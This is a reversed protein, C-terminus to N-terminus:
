VVSGAEDIGSVKTLGEFVVAKFCTRLTEHGKMKRIMGSERATAFNSPSTWPELGINFTRGWWPYGPLGHFVKWYWIFPFVTRDWVLGFGLKRETNTVAYWGDELNDLYLLDASRAGDPPIARLDVANGNKDTTRPWNGQFGPEFFSTPSNFNRCVTFRRAPIDIRCNSDLFPKGFTPHQGWMFELEQDSENTISEEVAIIPSNARIGIRKEIKCPFRHTRCKLIVAVSAAHDEAVVFSWPVLAVEGHLGQESGMWNFPGGGPFSEHWGGEYYDLNNGLASAITPIHKATDRLGGPARWMFDIDAPKYLIEIIDAGKDALITVRLM